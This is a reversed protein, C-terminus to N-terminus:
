AKLEKSWEIYISNTMKVLMNTLDYSLLHPVFNKNSNIHYKTEWEGENKSLKLIM